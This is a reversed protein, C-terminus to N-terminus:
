RVLGPQYGDPAQLGCLELITTGINALGANDDDPHAIRLKGQPDVVIFPVENLTHSTKPLPSGDDHELVTGKKRLYMEDANGHDATVLLIGDAANVAEELRAVCRDVVELAIRTAELDGTHGVMDGNAYNLRVHDWNGELIEAVARDTIEAARMWPREQPRAADSPIEAYTELSADLLGSRNGNFFFTVHGFKHTESCAFTSRKAAVLYEGVTRDIAPPQVM